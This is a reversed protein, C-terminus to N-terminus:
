KRDEVLAKFPEGCAEVNQVYADSIAQSSKELSEQLSHALDSLQLAQPTSASTAYKSVRKTLKIGSDLAKVIGTVTAAFDDM